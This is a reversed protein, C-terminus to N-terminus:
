SEDAAHQQAHGHKRFLPTSTANGGGGFRMASVSSGGLAASLSSPHTGRGIDNYQSADGSNARPAVGLGTHHSSPSISNTRLPVTMSGWM